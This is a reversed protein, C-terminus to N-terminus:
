LDPQEKFVFRLEIRRNRKCTEENNDDRCDVDELPRFQGYGAAAFKESWHDYDEDDINTIEKYFSVARLASLELNSKIRPTAILPENDSHGSIFITEVNLPNGETLQQQSTKYKNFINEKAVNRGSYRQCYRRLEPSMSRVDQTCYLYKSIIDGIKKVSRQKDPTIEYEGKDFLLETQLRLTNEKHVVEVGELGEYELEKSISDLLSNVLKIHNKKEKQTLDEKAKAHLMSFCVAIIIFNFLLASMLDGIALHYIDNQSGQQKHKKRIM